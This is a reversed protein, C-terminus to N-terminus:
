FPCPEHYRISVIYLGNVGEAAEELQNAAEDPIPATTRLLGLAKRLYSRPVGDLRCAAHANKESPLDLPVCGVTLEVDMRKHIPNYAQIYRVCFDSKPPASTAPNEEAVGTGRLLGNVEQWNM